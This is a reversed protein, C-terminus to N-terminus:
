KKEVNFYAYHAQQQIRMHGPAMQNYIDKFKMGPIDITGRSDTDFAVNTTNGDSLATRVRSISNVPNSLFSKLESSSYPTKTTNGYDLRGPCLGFDSPLLRSLDPNGKIGKDNKILYANVIDVMEQPSLWPSHGCNTGNPDSGARYWSKYSWTVGSIRDWADNFWDDGGGSKTDWKAIGDIWGGHVAAYLSEYATGGSVLVQNKTAEVIGKWVSDNDCDKYVQDSQSPAIHGKRNKVAIAYSRSAIAQAKVAEANWSPPMEFIRNMYTTFPVVEDYYKEYSICNGNSDYGGQCTCSTGTGLVHITEPETYNKDISASYYTQLIDEYTQGADARARAGWQSMGNRHTYAGISFVGFYGSPASDISTSSDSSTTGGSSILGASRAAILAAQLQSVKQSLDTIESSLGSKAAVQRSLEAQLRAKENALLKHAEDLGTRQEDLGEKERDLEAKSEALSSFEGGIKEAEFRLVSVTSMRIYLSEVLSKWNASGLFFNAVKYRSQIYLDGSVEDILVKTKELEAQKQEIGKVKKEIEKETQAINEELINIEKTLLSIKQSISYNSNGIEEIRREVGELISEKEKIEQEKQAIEEELEAVSNSYVPFHFILLFYIGFLLFILLKTITRPMKLM